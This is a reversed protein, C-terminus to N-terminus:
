DQVTLDVIGPGAIPSPGPMDATVNDLACFKFQGVTCVAGVIPIIKKIIKCIRDVANTLRVAYGGLGSGVRSAAEGARILQRRQLM